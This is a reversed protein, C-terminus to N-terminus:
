CTTEMHLKPLASYVTDKCLVSRIILKRKSIIVSDELVHLFQCNFALGPSLIILLLKPVMERLIITIVVRISLNKNRNSLLLHHFSKM